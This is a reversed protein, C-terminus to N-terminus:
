ENEEEAEYLWNVFPKCADRIKRATEHGVRSHDLDSQSHWEIITDEDLIDCDYLKQFLIPTRPLLKPALTGLIEEMRNIVMSSTNFIDVYIELFDKYKEISKLMGAFDSLDFIINFIIDTIQKKDIGRLELLKAESLLKEISTNDQLASHFEM